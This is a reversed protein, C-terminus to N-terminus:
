GPSMFLFLIDFVEGRLDNVGKRWEVYTSPFGPWLKSYICFHPPASGSLPIEVRRRKIISIWVAAICIYLCCCCYLYIFLLLLVSIYVVAAICIYLCCCCYLYIFLLLLVSIYVVAAICIYLCCCCYLYIFLCNFVQVTLCM